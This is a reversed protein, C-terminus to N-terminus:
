GIFDNTKDQFRMFGRYKRNPNERNKRSRHLDEPRQISKSQILNTDTPQPGLIHPGLIHPGLIYTPQKASARICYHAALIV